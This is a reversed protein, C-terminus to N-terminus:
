KIDGDDELLMMVLLLLDANVQDIAAQNVVAGTDSVANLSLSNSTSFDKGFPFM